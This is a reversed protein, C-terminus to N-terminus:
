KGKKFTVSIHNAVTATGDKGTFEVYSFDEFRIDEVM